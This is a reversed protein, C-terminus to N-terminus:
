ASTSAARTHRDRGLGFQPEAVSRGHPVADAVQDRDVSQLPHPQLPQEVVVMRAAGRHSPVVFAHGGTKMARRADLLQAGGVVHQQDGTQPYALPVLQELGADGGDGFKGGM